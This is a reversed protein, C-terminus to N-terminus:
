KCPIIVVVFVVVIKLRYKLYCHKQSAHLHNKLNITVQSLAPIGFLFLQKFTTNSRKFNLRDRWLSYFRAM